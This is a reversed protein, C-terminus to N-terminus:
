RTPLSFQKKEKALNEGIYHFYNRIKILAPFVYRIM